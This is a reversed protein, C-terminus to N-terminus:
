VPLPASVIACTRSLPRMVSMNQANEPGGCSRADQLTDSPDDPRVVRLEGFQPGPEALPAVQTTRDITTASRSRM